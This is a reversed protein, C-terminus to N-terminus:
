ATKHLNSLATLSLDKASKKLKWNLTIETSHAESCMSLPDMRLINWYM